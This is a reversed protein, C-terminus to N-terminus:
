LEEALEIAKRLAAIKNNVENLESEPVSGSVIGAGAQY